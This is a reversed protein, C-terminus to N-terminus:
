EFQLSRRLLWTFVLMLPVNFVVNLPNKMLYVEAWTEYGLITLTLYSLVVIILPILALLFFCVAGSKYSRATSPYVSTLVLMSLGAIAGAIIWEVVEFGSTVSMSFLVACSILIMVGLYGVKRRV